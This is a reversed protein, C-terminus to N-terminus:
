CGHQPHTLTQTLTAPPSNHILTGGFGNASMVFDAAMYQGLLAINATHTGDSVTLTGGTNSSNAAYSLTTNSDFALDALDLADNADFGAVTGSFDAAHDIKLTANADADLKVNQGFAGGMEFLAAGNILASGTGSVDGDITISGGNAWLLGFNAIDSHIDLGGSGVAELTGSNVIANAATDITLANSGSAIITGENHLRLQGEVLQGAGSITNDVNTLTADPSTGVITNGNSDSFNVHGGGELTLGNALVQLRTQGGISGLEITGSNNVTGALPLVANDSIVVSNANDMVTDRNFLFNNATLSAARVGDFTISEGEAITVVADGNSSESLRAQVDVFGSLDRFGILNVKDHAVDFKYITDNGIPQALVFLDDSSSGSLNDDDAIAFIPAGEAYVEVNDTVVVNGSSGDTNVWSEAVNLVLAGTYSKPSTVSLAALDNTEVTWTGDGNNTGESMIWGSPVASINVTVSGLHGSPNTLGLNIVEGAVGAPAASAEFVVDAWYNTARYTNTPFIGTTSTGGYAYVGEPATILVGSTVANDNFFYDTAVYYGTTHYSAIYSTNASIAVATSLAVTQWGSADTNTFTASALKTGTASWLNLVDPGTDSASRYFKLGTIQGAVSSQFQVGVELQKGDNYTDAPTDSASFLSTVPTAGGGGSVSADTTFNFSTSNSIGAYNNGAVDRIVGSAINVYYGSGAALNSSPNITVQNGSFSVQNTNTVPISQAITGNSNRIVINGSGPLVTESFTLVLNSSPAVGTSNDAPSVSTLVPPTTDLSTVSISDLSWHSPDQRFDFELHSTGAAGIVDFTYETYGQVPENVLALLTQGNWKVTCDDPGGSANALWFDLTYHQGATTPLDQSLTGDSGMPGLGAAYQGSQAASFIYTQPGYSGVGVNGSLMWGTFDGTEFGGNVVLNTPTAGGGGSVPADTTFSFSTSNSIGAYNNGAVDRIVGSAITVYYSSGAALDNSPNITVQNGSFTVQSTDTVAINKTTGDSTNHLLINGSGPVVMENFTLVLNSNTAVNTSNDAPSLPSLSALLPPTTDVPAVPAATTFNFSGSSNSIGAYNNGAVDRIVGSAITVYYSSGAALDNSPNITVQNGSFTVQSTDTVAINKTTGDSTNHLLINGSGPVVMENFTLVLNSNTAVNTSNDAPSLPSLSALLPPTTDVPAVPAATTFNFSGSNSIGAYNNGAVDRIVGSAITVYYSSGAALDNSPNITVQNGSFTVQSTDTVAINKTTGDSTNHLLINGSGPVVMENFTLVLNSNTAVNTSNDAPSLPSLSALLPPTTDVPAVPAATTFNFSGSNSIGAYNNGAVDRIVGSAITVYYSSGAALDNSPNITVQNGSFTVQSTDTVAINKTTGDSTNHLLINGSGPVVTENFTLVLNSNTAVNTSNDAPSLPSLSALLPPTTDVTSPPPTGDVSAGTIWDYNGSLTIGSNALDWYGFQGKGMANKTISVNSIPAGGSIVYVTYGAGVLLNNNINVNSVPQDSEIFITGTQSNSDMRFSNGQILMSFDSGGGGAYYIAEDHTGPGGNVNWIYNNEITIQGGIVTIVQGTDHINCGIITVQSDGAVRIAESGLTGSTGAGSIEVNQIVVNKVGPAVNIEWNDSAQGTILCNSLTVNSATINISGTFHLGSYTGPSSITNSSAATLVTSGYGTNSADPWTTSM